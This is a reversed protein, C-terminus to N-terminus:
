YPFSAEIRTGKGPATFVELKGNVRTARRKMNNLGYGSGTLGNKLKAEQDFGKGDDMITFHFRRQEQSVRITVNSAEAYKSINSLAESCISSIQYRIEGPVVVNNLGPDMELHLAVRDGMLVSKDHQIKQVVNLMRDNEPDIAWVLRRMNGVISKAIQSISQIKPNNLHDNRELDEASLVIATLRSGVDDHLNEYLKLRVNQLELKKSFRLYVIYALISGAALFVLSIFWWTKYFPPTVSISVLHPVPNRVGDSNYAYVKFTYDGSRLNPYRVFTGNATVVEHKDVGDLQYGVKNQM